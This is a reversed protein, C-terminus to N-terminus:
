VEAEARSWFRLEEALCRSTMCESGVPELFLLTSMNSLHLVHTDRVELHAKSRAGVARSGVVVVTECGGSLGEGSVPLLGLFVTDLLVSHRVVIESSISDVVLGDSLILVSRVVQALCLLRLEVSGHVCLINALGMEQESSIAAWRREIDMGVCRFSAWVLAVDASGQEALGRICSGPCVNLDVM